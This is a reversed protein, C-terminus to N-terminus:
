VIHGNDRKVYDLTQLHSIDILVAPEVLRMKLMPTLTQGGALIRADEGPETLVALAEELSDPSVFDVPAPKM